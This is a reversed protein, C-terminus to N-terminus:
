YEYVAVDDFTLHSSWSNLAFHRHSDGTLPEPDDYRLYLRGDVYWRLEDGTRVVAM